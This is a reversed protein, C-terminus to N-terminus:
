TVLPQVYEEWPRLGESRPNFSERGSVMLALRWLNAEDFMELYEKDLEKFSHTIMYIPKGASVAYAVEKQCGSSRECGPLVLVQDCLDILGNYFIQFKLDFDKPDDPLLQAIYQVQHICRTTTRGTLYDTIWAMNAINRRLTGFDSATLPHCLFSISRQDYGTAPFQSQVHELLNQYYATADGRYPQLETIFEM